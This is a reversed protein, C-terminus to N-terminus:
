RMRFDVPKKHTDIDKLLIEERNKYIRQNSTDVEQLNLMYDPFGQRKKSFAMLTFSIIFPIGFTLLSLVMEAFFFIAFRLLYKPTKVSLCDKDLLGIQYVFKGITCRNRRFCLPPILYVLVGSLLYAIPLEVYILLNSMFKTANYYNEFGVTLYGHLTKDIFPVYANNFYDIHIAPCLLNKVIEGEDNVVFYHNTPDTLPLDKSFILKDSLFYTKANEVLELYITSEMNNKSYDFFKTIAKESNTLRRYDSNVENGKNYTVIDVIQGTSAKIYLGSDIRVTEIIENNQKYVPINGMIARTGIFLAFFALVLLIIDLVNAFVRRHFVARKYRIEIKKDYTENVNM